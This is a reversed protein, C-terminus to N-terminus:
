RGDEAAKAGIGSAFLAFCKRAVADPEIAARPQYWQYAWNCVGFFCLTTLRVDSRRLAGTKMGQRIVQMVDSTFASRRRSIEARSEPTLELSQEFFSRVVGTQDRLARFIDEFVGRLIAVSDLGAKRREAIKGRLSVIMQQQIGFLIEDKSRIYHYLTPKKLGAAEAIMEMNVGHFGVQDFLRAAERLIDGRRRDILAVDARPGRRRAGATVTGGDRDEAVPM